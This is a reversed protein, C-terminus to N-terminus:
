TGLFGGFLSQFLSDLFGGSSPRERIRLGTSSEGIV